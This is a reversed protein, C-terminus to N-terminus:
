SRSERVARLLITLDAAMTAVQPLVVGNLGMPYRLVYPGIHLESLRQLWIPTVQAYPLGRQATHLWLQALDHGFPSKRLEAEALGSSALYAKLACEVVQGAVFTLPWATRPLGAALPEIGTLLSEAASILADFPTVEGSRLTLTAHGSAIVPEM